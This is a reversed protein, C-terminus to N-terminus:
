HKMLQTPLTLLCHGYVVIKVSFLFSFRLPDFWPGEAQRGLAKGSPWVPESWERGFAQAISAVATGRAGKNPLRDAPGVSLAAGGVLRCTLGNGGFRSVSFM